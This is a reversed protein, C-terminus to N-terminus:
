KKNWEPGEKQFFPMCIKVTTKYPDATYGIGMFISEVTILGNHLEVIEKVRGLGFGSGTRSQDLSLEGRYGDQFILGESIEHPKIGIGYNIIEICYYNNRINLYKGSKTKFIKKYPKCVVTIFKKKEETGRFSYKVANHILNFLVQKVHPKSIVIDSYPIGKIIPDNIIVYKKIAEKRFLEITENIIDLINEYKLEYRFEEFELISGRINEAIYYLKTVQQLIDEALNKAEIGVESAEYYLNEADAIISQIPLLFEHALSTSEKQFSIARKHEDIARQHEILVYREIFSLKDLLKVDVSDFITNDVIESKEWLKVLYTYTKENLKDKHVDLFKELAKKSEKNKGHIRRHGVLFAGVLKGDITVPHSYCWLGANCKFIGKTKNPPYKITCTEHGIIECAKQCFKPWYKNSYIPKDNDAVKFVISLGTIEYYIDLLMETFKDDLNLDFKIHNKLSPTLVDESSDDHL